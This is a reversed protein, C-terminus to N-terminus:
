VKILDDVFMQCTIIEKRQRPHFWTNLNLQGIVDIHDFCAIEGQWDEDTKFKLLHLGDCEIKVTDSNAGLVKREEVMLNSVKFKASPFDKGTLKNFADIERILEPTIDDVDIELDYEISSVFDVGQIHEDVISHFLDLNEADFQVGGAQEHGLAYHVFRISNLFQKMPFDGYTRFSGTIKGNYNRAVIVPRKHKEAINNAILGNFSKSEMDHLGVIIKTDTILNEEIEKTLKKQIRKRKDNVSKMKEATQICQSPDDDLLLDFALEIQDMRACGNILPSINFAIVQSDVENYSKKNMSLLAKLGMNKINAMGTLMLYRNELEAVSMLDAYMGCAVLDLYSDVVGSGLTDDMVSITKYVVAVGSLEKNPYDDQQPNVLTAYPNEKEIIHHDLIVIEIGQESIQKCEDVSNTSSDLIILLDTDDPIYEIQKEIGHGAGRQNFIIHVNKTFQLLFRVMVVTSFIGDADCDASVVIKENKGIAKIIRNSVTEINKLLYPSHLHENSPNLFGEVDSIGRIKALKQIINNSQTYKIKPKRQVWKM